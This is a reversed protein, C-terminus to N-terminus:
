LGFSIIRSIDVGFALVVGVTIATVLAAYLLAGGVKRTNIKFVDLFLFNFARDWVAVVLFVLSAVFLLVLIDAASRPLSVTAKVPRKDMKKRTHTKQQHGITKSEKKQSGDDNDRLVRGVLVITLVFFLLARARGNKRCFLV